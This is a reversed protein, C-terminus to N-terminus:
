LWNNIEEIRIMCAVVVVITTAILTVREPWRM